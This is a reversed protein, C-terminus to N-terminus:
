RDLLPTFLDVIAKDDFREQERKQSSPFSPSSAHSTREEIEGIRDEIESVAGNLVSDPVGFRAAFKKLDDSRAGM